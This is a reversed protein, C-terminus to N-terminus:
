DIVAAGLIIRATKTELLGSSSLVRATIGVSTAVMATGVFMAEVGSAGWMRMLLVGAGFPAIVGMIAVLAARKGVRFMEAPRTELGVSFLLFIVGIKALLNTFDSPTVWNLVSPGILVGALIEGAVAPQRLREFLEAMVKAAVLMILLPLLFGAGEAASTTLFLIMRQPTSRPTSSSSSKYHIVRVKEITVLGDAIMSDLSPVFAEIKELSDVIEILMPLDESLRLIKATHLVSNKGFGMVGRLVTAGALGAERAKLVIAEYLPRHGHRDSGSL